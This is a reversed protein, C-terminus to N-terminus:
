GEGSHNFRQIQGWTSIDRNKRGFGRDRHGSWIEISRLRGLREIVSGIGQTELRLKGRGAGGVGSM